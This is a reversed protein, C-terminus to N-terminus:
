PQHMFCTTTYGYWNQQNGRNSVDLRELKPCTSTIIDVIRNSACSVDKLNLRVLHPNNRIMNCLVRDDTYHNIANAVNLTQLQHCSRSFVELEAERLRFIGNLSLLRLSAAHHPLFDVLFSKSLQIGQCFDLTLAKLVGRVPRGTKRRQALTLRSLSQFVLTLHHRKYYSLDLSQINVLYQSLVNKWDLSVRTFQVVEHFKFYTMVFSLILPHM